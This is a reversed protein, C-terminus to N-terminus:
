RAAVAAVWSALWSALSDAGTGSSGPEFAFAHSLGPITRVTVSRNPSVADTEPVRMVNVVRRSAADAVVITRCGPDSIVVRRGDPSIAIRNPYRFGDLTTLVAGTGADRVTVAGRVNEGVWLERGDPTVVLGEVDISAPFSAVFSHTGLDLRSLTGTGENTTFAIRGDSTVAVLHSRDGRTDVAGVISGSAVDVELLRRSTQATVLVRAPFGPRFAVDHLGRYEGTEITRSVRRRAMDIVFLKNGMYRGGEEPSFNSVVGWRGDPSIVADHPGNGTRVTEVRGTALDIISATGSFQNAVLLNGITAAPLSVSGERSIERNAPLCRRADEQGDGVSRLTVVGVVLLLAVISATLRPNLRAM